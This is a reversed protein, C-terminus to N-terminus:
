HTGLEPVASLGNPDPEVRDLNHLVVSEAARLAAGAVPAMGLAFTDGGRYGGRSGYLAVTVSDPGASV